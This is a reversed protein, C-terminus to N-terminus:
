PFFAAVYLWRGDRKEFVNFSSYESQRTSGDDNRYTFRGKGSAVAVDGWSRVATLEYGGSVMEPDTMLGALLQAKTRVSGEGDTATYDDAYLKDLAAADKRRHGDLIGQKVAGVARRTEEDASALGQPHVARDQARVTVASVAVVVAGVWVLPRKM